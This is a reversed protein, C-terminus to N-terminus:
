IGPTYSQQYKVKKFCHLMCKDKFELLVLVMTVMDAVSM